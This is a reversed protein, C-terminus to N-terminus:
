HIQISVLSDDRLVELVIISDLPANEFGALLDQIDDVLADNVSLITDDPKLGANGAKTGEMVSSVVLTNSESDDTKPFETVSFGQEFFYINPNSEVDPIVEEESEPIQDWPNRNAWQQMAQNELGTLEVKFDSFSGDRWVKVDVTQGPRFLAIQAQLENSESVPVNNVETVVDNRKLGARQAAGDRVLDVIEVGQITPMKLRNAREQNISVIQVGLYARQVEGFEMLDAAIKFAMNVPIAFGYGQYAGNETAIATNIGILEGALNVLAGGSNGRNIAADTQIFSEIRMRDNIIQVDRGLASVIGATVTSRLRLPNGVAMVWDGVYLHDSNGIVIHPLNEADIKIVAMDTSPDRGVVVADYERKDSLTVRVERGGAIVHNNTIIFGDPSILVGSGISNSRGRPLFREWFNEDIDEDTSDPNARRNTAPLTTEIYVVTPIVLQAVDRISFPMDIMMESIEIPSSNRKIETISVQTPTYSPKTDMRYFMLLIGIGIGILLLLFATLLINVSRM